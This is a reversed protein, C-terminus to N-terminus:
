VPSKKRKRPHCPKDALSPHLQLYLQHFTKLQCLAAFLGDLAAGFVVEQSAHTIIVLRIPKRTIRSVAAIIEEGHRFSVGSEVVVVGRPGVVFAVNAIRGLNAPAIEGPQGMLAYIGPAVVVPAPAAAFAMGVAGLASSILASMRRILAVVSLVARGTSSIRGNIHETGPRARVVSPVTM